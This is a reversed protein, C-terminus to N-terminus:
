CYYGYYIRRFIIKKTYFSNRGLHANLLNWVRRSCTSAPKNQAIAHIGKNSVPSALHSCRIAEKCGQATSSLKGPYAQLRQHVRKKLFCALSSIRLKDNPP